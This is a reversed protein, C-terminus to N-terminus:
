VKPPLVSKPSRNRRNHGPKISMIKHVVADVVAREADNQPGQLNFFGEDGSAQHKEDIPFVREISM